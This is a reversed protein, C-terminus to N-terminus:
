YKFELVLYKIVRSIGREEIAFDGDDGDGLIDLSTWPHELISNRGDGLIDLSAWPDVSRLDGDKEMRPCGQVDKVITVRAITVRAITVRAITVRAHPARRESHRPVARVFM